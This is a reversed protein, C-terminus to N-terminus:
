YLLAVLRPCVWVNWWCLYARLVRRARGTADRRLGVCLM